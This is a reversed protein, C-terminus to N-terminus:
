IMVTQLMLVNIVDLKVFLKEPVIQVEMYYASYLKKVM